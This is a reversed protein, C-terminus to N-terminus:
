DKFTNSICILSHVENWYNWGQQSKEWVFALKIAEELTKVDEKLIEDSTNNLAQTKYPEELEKLYELITKM